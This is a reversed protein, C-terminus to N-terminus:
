DAGVSYAETNPWCALIIPRYTLSNLHQRRTFPNKFQFFKDSNLSRGPYNHEFDSKLNKYYSLMKYQWSKRRHLTATRDESESRKKIFHITAHSPTVEIDDVILNDQGILQIRDTALLWRLCIEEAESAALLSRFDLQGFTVYQESVTLNDTPSISGAPRVCTKLKIYLEDLSNPESATILDERYRLNSILVREILSADESAVISNFIADYDFMNPKRFNWDLGKADSMDIKKIRNRVEPYELIMKRHRQCISLFGICFKQLSSLLIGDDYNKSSVLESMALRTGDLEGNKPISPRNSLVSLYFTKEARSIESMWAQEEGWVLMAYLISILTRTSGLTLGKSNTLHNAYLQLIITPVEKPSTYHEAIYDIFEQGVSPYKQLTPDQLASKNQLFRIIAKLILM